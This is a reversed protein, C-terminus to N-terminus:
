HANKGKLVMLVTRFIIKIDLWLSWRNIYVNDADVRAQMQDPTHICGRLGSCQALGTLGPKMRFRQQYHYVSRTYLADHDLMHPRPGVVSMDGKIVNWLQPLEDISTKRLWKGLATVRPDAPTAHKAGGFLCAEQTMTRFKYITFPTGNLGGRQQKYIVPGKSELKILIATVFLLPSLLLLAVSASAVDFLRKLSLQAGYDRAAYDPNLSQANNVVFTDSQAVYSASVSPETHTQKVM